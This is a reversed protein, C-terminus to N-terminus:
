DSSLKVAGVSVTLRDSADEEEIKFAFDMEENTCRATQVNSKLFILMGTGSTAFRDM